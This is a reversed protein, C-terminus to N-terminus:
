TGTGAEQTILNRSSGPRIKGLGRDPEAIDDAMTRAQVDCVASDVRVGALGLADGRLLTM